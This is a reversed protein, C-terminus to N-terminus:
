LRPRKFSASAIIIWIKALNILDTPIYCLSKIALTVISLQVVYSEWRVHHILLRWLILQIRDTLHINNMAFSSSYEESINKNPNKKICESNSKHNNWRSM